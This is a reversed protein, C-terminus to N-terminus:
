VVRVGRPLSADLLHSRSGKCRQCLDLVSDECWLLLKFLVAVTGFIAMAFDEVYWHLKTAKEINGEANLM